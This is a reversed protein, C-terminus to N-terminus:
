LVPAPYNEGLFGNKHAILATGSQQLIYLLTDDQGKNCSTFTSTKTPLNYARKVTVDPLTRKKVLCKIKVESKEESHSYPFDSTLICRKLVSLFNVSTM